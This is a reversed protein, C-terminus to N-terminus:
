LWGEQQRSVEWMACGLRPGEGMLMGLMKSVGMTSLAVWPMPLPMKRFLGTM